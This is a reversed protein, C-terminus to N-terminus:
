AWCRARAKFSMHDGVAFPDTGEEAIRNLTSIVDEIQFIAKFSKNVLTKLGLRRGKGNICEEHKYQTMYGSDSAGQMIDTIHEKIDELKWALKEVYQYAAKENRKGMGQIERVIKDLERLNVRYYVFHPRIKPHDLIENAITGWQRYANDYYASLSKLVTIPKLMKEIQLAVGNIEKVEKKAKRKKKKGENAANKKEKLLKRYEAMTYTKGGVTIKCTDREMSSMTYASTAM